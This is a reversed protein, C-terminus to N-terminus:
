AFCVNGHTKTLAAVVALDAVDDSGVLSLLCVRGDMCFQLLTRNANRLDDTLTDLRLVITDVLALSEMLNKVMMEWKTLQSWCINSLVNQPRLLYFPSRAVAPSLIRIFEM